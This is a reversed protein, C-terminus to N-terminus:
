TLKMRSARVPDLWNCIVCTVEEPKNGFRLWQPPTRDPKVFPGKPFWSNWFRVKVPRGQQFLFVDPNRLDLRLICGTVHDGGRVVEVLDLARPYKEMDSLARLETISSIVSTKDM